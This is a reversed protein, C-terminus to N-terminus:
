IIIIEVAHGRNDPCQKDTVKIKNCEQDASSVILSMIAKMVM